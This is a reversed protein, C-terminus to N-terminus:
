KNRAALEERIKALTGLLAKGVTEPDGGPMTTVATYGDPNLVLVGAAAGDKGLANINVEDLNGEGKTTYTGTINMDGVQDNVNYDSKKLESKYM